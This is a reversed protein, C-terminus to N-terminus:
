FSVHVVFKKCRYEYARSVSIVVVKHIQGLFEIPTLKSSLPMYSEDQTSFRWKLVGIDQGVPFPKDQNKLGIVSQSAFLKKDINPHTQLCIM